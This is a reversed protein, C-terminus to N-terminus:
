GDTSGLGPPAISQDDAFGSLYFAPVEDPRLKLLSMRHVARATRALVDENEETREPGWVRDSAARMDRLTRELESDTM